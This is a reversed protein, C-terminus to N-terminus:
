ALKLQRIKQELLIKVDPDELLKSMLEDAENRAQDIEVATKVDLPAACKHCFKAIPSNKEGCRLCKIIKLKDEEEEAEEGALGHIRLLAKDVDRGSLHVYVAAMESSQTWGFMEKMQAETLKKALESARSHRFIHPNIAKRIGARNAVRILMMRVAEYDIPQGRGVTGIGPWLPGSPDDKRPHVEIWDSLLPASAIVRVRRMGTKGAVVIQAGNNDFSVHKIQLGLLEGIRFGGEYLTMILARDRPHDASQALKKVDDESLLEEPLLKHNNKVTAKIWSVQEPYEEGGDLWKYFKKLAVKYGHKTWETYNRQEIDALYKQIDKRSAKELPKRIAVTILRMLQMLRLIRIPTLGEARCSECFKLIIQKNHESVNADRRLIDLSRALDPAANHPDFAPGKLHSRDTAIRM